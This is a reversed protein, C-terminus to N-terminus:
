NWISWRDVFQFHLTGEEVELDRINAIIKAAAPDPIWEAELGPSGLSLWGTLDAEGVRLSTPELLLTGHAIEVGGQYRIVLCEEDVHQVVVAEVQDGRAEIRVEYALLDHLLFSTEQGSLSLRADVAPDVQYHELRHKLKVLTLMTVDPPELQPCEGARALRLIHNVYLALSIGIILALIAGIRAARSGWVM